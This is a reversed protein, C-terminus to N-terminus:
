KGDPSSGAEVLLEQLQLRNDPLLREGASSIPFRNMSAPDVLGIALQYRGPPLERPLEIRRPDVIVENALWTYPPRTGMFPRGDDQAVLEGREDYLHVFVAADGDIAQGARWYLTLPVASGAEHPAAPLDYGTLEIGPDFLADVSTQPAGEGLAVDGQWLWLYYPAFKSGDRGQNAVELSIEVEERSVFSAPIYFASELWEGPLGPYRWAGVPQGDVSVHAAAAQEPHFRGVLLLPQGPKVPSSFSLGGTLLRGGDIVEREHDTRYRLQRVETAFGPLVEGEWWEFDHSAEDDLDALDIQDVLTTGATLKKIDAQYSEDASGALRWDARYVAQTSGAASIPSYAEVEARYLEEAFLDTEQLYVLSLVNPYTAFYDPREALDEMKEFLAGIGSRWALAMGQNTLGILDLTPRRGFYRIVGADHVGVFSDEPLNDDVWDAINAQQDGVSRVSHGYIEQANATQGAGSALLALLLIIAAPVAAREPLRELLSVLGLAAAPALLAVFPVQYRGVQWTATILTSTALAGAIFWGAMLGATTAQRRIFLIIWGVIALPLLLPSVPWPEPALFGLSLRTLIRRFENGVSQLIDLFRFPVNLFWSKAQAGSAVLSGTLLYNFLLPIISLALALTCWALASRWAQDRFVLAAVVVVLWMVGVLFLGEPRTFAMLVGALSALAFRKRLFSYLTSLLLLSFLGTEMANFYGWQVAGTLLFLLATIPPAWRRLSNQRPDGIALLVRTIQSVLVASVVLAIAGLALAFWVLGEDGIGLFLSIALIFPYLLSTAGTSYPDGSNYQWPAGESIQRAYQFHIYADDLPALPRGGTQRLMTLGYLLILLVGLLFVWGHQRLLRGLNM